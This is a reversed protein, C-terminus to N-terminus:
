KAVTLTARGSAGSALVVVAADGENPPAFFGIVVSGAANTKGTGITIVGVSLTVQEDAKPAGNATVRITANVLAGPKVKSNDLSVVVTLPAASAQPAVTIATKTTTENGARDRAVVTITLPGATVNITDSFSGDQAPVITRDNVIVTAGPEAKGEVVVNQGDIKEDAKPKTVVLGPPTKDFVVTYSSTAVAEAGALLRLAIPNPGEKLTITTSYAGTADPVLTAALIGNVSVEVKRGDGTLFGPVKGTLKLAPDRVFDPVFDLPLSSNVTGATTPLDIPKSGQAAPLLEGVNTGFEAVGAGMLGAVRPTAAFVFVVAVVLTAIELWRLPKPLRPKVGSVRAVSRYHDRSVRPRRIRGSRTTVSAASRM